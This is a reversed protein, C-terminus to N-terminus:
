RRWVGKLRSPVGTLRPVALAVAQAKEGVAGSAGGTVTGTSMNSRSHHQFMLPPLVPPPPLSSSAAADHPQQQQQRHWWQHLSQSM